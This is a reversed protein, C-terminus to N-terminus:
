KKPLDGFYGYSSIGRCSGYKEYLNDMIPHFSYCYRVRKSIELGMHNRTLLFKFLAMFNKFKPLDGFVTVVQIGEHGIYECYFRVNFNFTFQPLLIAKQFYLM